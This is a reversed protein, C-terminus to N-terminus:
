VLVELCVYSIAWSVVRCKNYSVKDKPDVTARHQLLKDVVEVHGNHSAYILSSLGNQCLLFYSTITSSCVM